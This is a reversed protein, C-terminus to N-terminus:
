TDVDGADGEVDDYAACRYSAADTELRRRNVTAGSNTM